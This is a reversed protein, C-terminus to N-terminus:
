KALAKKVKSLQSKDYTYFTANVELVNSLVRYAAIDERIATHYYPAFGHRNKISERIRIILAVRATQMVKDLQQTNATNDTNVM